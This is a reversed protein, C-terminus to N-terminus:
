IWYNCTMKSDVQILLWGGGWVFFGCGENGEGKWQGGWFEGPTEGCGKSRAETLFQGNWWTWLDRGLRQQREQHLHFIRNLRQLLPSTVSNIYQLYIYIHVNMYWIWPFLVRLLRKSGWLMGLVDEWSTNSHRPVYVQFGHIDEIKRRQLVRWLGLDKKGTLVLTM